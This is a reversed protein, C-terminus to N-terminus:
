NLFSILHPIKHPTLGSKCWNLFDRQAAASNNKLTINARIQDGKMEIYEGFIEVEKINDNKLLLRKVEQPYAKKGAVNFMRKKLGLFFVNGNEDRSGYDGTHLWGNIITSRTAEPYNFYGKMVNEGQICIEEKENLPVEHNFEDLIKVKCYEIARGISGNADYDKKFQWTCVPSAETLGYGEYLPTNFKKIYINLITQSLKYGGSILSYSQKAIGQMLPSKSLLYYIIPISYIHSTKNSLVEEAISNVKRMNSLNSILLSGNVIFPTIIGNQFGYLHYFPLIACSVSQSDVHNGEAIAQANTLINRHTLMAAKAYGDEANTYLLLCVDDLEMVKKEDMHVDTLEIEKGYDFEFTLPDIKVIASPTTDVLMEEYELKGVGPDVLLAARGSKVIGFFATVTKIHNPAFLYVIPSNSRINRDLYRAFANIEKNMYEPGFVRDRFIIRNFRIHDTLM